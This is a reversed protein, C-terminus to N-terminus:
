IRGTSEMAIDEAITLLARNVIVIVMSSLMRTLSSSSPILGAWTAFDASRASTLRRSARKSRLATCRSSGRIVLLSRVELDALISCRFVKAETRSGDISIQTRLGLAFPDRCRPVLEYEGRPVSPPIFFQRGSVDGDKAGLLTNIDRCSVSYM